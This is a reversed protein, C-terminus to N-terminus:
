CPSRTLSVQSFIFISSSSPYCGPSATRYMNGRAMGWLTSLSTNGTTVTVRCIELNTVRCIELNTDRHIEWNTVRCIEWNASRIQSLCKTPQVGKLNKPSAGPGSWLSRLGEAQWVLLAKSWSKLNYLTIFAAQRGLWSWSLTVMEVSLSATTSRPPPTSRNASTTTRTQQRLLTTVWLFQERIVMDPYCFTEASGDFRLLPRHLRAFEEPSHHALSLSPLSAATSTVVCGALLVLCGRHTLFRMVSNKLFPFLYLKEQLLKASLSPLPLFFCPRLTAFRSLRQFCLDEKSFKGSWRSVKWAIQLIELGNPFKDPWRSVKWTM